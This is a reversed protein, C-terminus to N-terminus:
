ENTTDRRAYRSSNEDSVCHLPYRRLWELFPQVHNTQIREGEGNTCGQRMPPYQFPGLCTPTDCSTGCTTLLGLIPRVALAQCTFEPLIFLLHSTTSLSIM